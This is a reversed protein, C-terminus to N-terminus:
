KMLPLGDDGREERERVEGVYLDKSFKPIHDNSDLITINLGKRGVRAPNGRDRAEIGLYFSDNKEGDLRKSVVLKVKTLESTPPLVKLDFIGGDNRRVIECNQITNNGIDRDKAITIALEAGLPAPESVSIHEVAEM